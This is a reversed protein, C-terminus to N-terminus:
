PRGQRPHHHISGPVQYDLLRLHQPSRNTVTSPLKAVSTQNVRPTKSNETCEGRVQYTALYLSLTKFSRDTPPRGLWSQQRWYWVGYGTEFSPTFLQMHWGVLFCKTCLVYLCASIMCGRIQAFPLTFRGRAFTASSYEHM